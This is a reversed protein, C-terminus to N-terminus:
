TLIGVVMAPCKIEFNGSAFDISTYGGDTFHDIGATLTFIAVGRPPLIFQKYLLDYPGYLSRREFNAIWGSYVRLDLINMFQSSEWPPITPPRNWYELIILEVDVALLSTHGFFGADAWAACNGNMTLYSEVNVVAYRDTPNEWAFVFQVDDFGGQDADYWAGSIKAVTNWPAVNLSQFNFGDSFFVFVPTDIIAVNFGPLRDPSRGALREKAIRWSDVEAQLQNRVTPARKIAAANQEELLRKMVAHTESRLKELEDPGIGASRLISAAIKESQRRQLDTKRSRESLEPERLLSMYQRRADRAKSLAARIEDKNYEPM